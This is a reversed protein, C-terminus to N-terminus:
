IRKVIETLNKDVNELSEYITSGTAFPLSIIQNAFATFKIDGHM